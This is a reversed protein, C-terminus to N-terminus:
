NKDPSSGKANFVLKITKFLIIFDLFISYNRLYYLDYSLKNKSDNISAGYPYNIQAWGSLGPLISYRNEYGKIHEKLVADIEPREPRPGILSMEGKIVLILQPIEDIRFKRLIGGIFTIRKDNRYSWQIGEKEANLCMTRLKIVKIKSLNLGTRIQTYFIPGKDNLFILIGASILIPFSLFLLLISLLIEGARKVRYQLFKDKPYLIENILFKDSILESPIRFMYTESWKIMSFIELGLSKLLKIKKQNLEDLFNNDIIIGSFKNIELNQIDKIENLDIFKNSEFVKKNIRENKIKEFYKFNIVIWNKCNKQKKYKLFVIILQSFFSILFFNTFAIFSQESNFLNINLSKLFVFIILGINIFIILSLLSKTILHILAKSLNNIYFNFKGVIYCTVLWLFLYFLSLFINSSLFKKSFFIFFCSEIFVQTFFIKRYINFFLM